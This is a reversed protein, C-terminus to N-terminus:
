KKEKELVIHNLIRKLSESNSHSSQDKTKSYQQLQTNKIWQMTGKVIPDSVDAKILSTEIEKPNIGHHDYCTVYSLVDVLVKEM